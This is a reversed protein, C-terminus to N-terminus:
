APARKHGEGMGFVRAFFGRSRTYRQTAVTRFDRSLRRASWFIVAADVALSLGFWVLTYARSSIELNRRRDMELFSCVAAFSIFLLWPVTLVRGLTSAAAQSANRSKAASWMGAFAIALVDPFLVAMHVGYLLIIFGRDESADQLSDHCFFVDAALAAVLPWGFQRWLARLQGRLIAETDLPTSLILELSGNRRDEAIRQVVVVGIWFKLLGHVVIPIVGDMGSDRWEDAHYLLAWFTLAGIMTLALWPYAPKLRDRAALWYFPNMSLMSERFAMRRAPDGYAWGLWRTRWRVGRATAPRDKWVHPILLSALALSVWALGHAVGVSIWFGTTPVPTMMRMVTVTLAYGPSLSMIGIPPTSQRWAGWIGWVMPPGLAAVVMALATFAATRNAAKLITSLLMGVALSFFLTNLLILTVVVFQRLTVGGLLLPLSLLPFVAVLGYIGRLSSAALKGLVVDLGRLDTLFLLGLTGERKELSVTDATQRVGALLASLFTVWTLSAFVALGREHRPLEKAMIFVYVGLGLGILAAGLRSWYTSPRRSAVRLERAVIPLLTM